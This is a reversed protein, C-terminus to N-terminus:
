SVITTAGRVTVRDNAENYNAPYKFLIANHLSVDLAVPTDSALITFTISASVGEADTMTYTFTAVSFDATPTGALARTSATFTVGTPLTGTLSATLTGVGGSGAPLTEDVATGIVWVQNAFSTPSFVIAPATVVITFTQTLDLTTGDADTATYTFTASTFRGTPTGSLVRTSKSYLNCWAAVNDAFTFIYVNRCGRKCNTLNFKSGHRGDMSSERNYFRFTIASATVVVTFTLIDM